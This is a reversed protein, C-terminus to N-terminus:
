FFYYNYKIIVFLHILHVSLVRKQISKLNNWCKKKGFLVFLSDVYFNIDM